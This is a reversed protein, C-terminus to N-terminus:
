RSELFRRHGASSGAAPFATFVISATLLLIGALILSWLSLHILYEGIEGKRRKSRGGNRERLVSDAAILLVAIALFLVSLLVIPHCVESRSSGPLALAMWFLAFIVFFFVFKKM